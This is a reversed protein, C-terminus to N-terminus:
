PETRAPRAFTTTQWQYATQNTQLVSVIGTQMQGLVTARRIGLGRAAVDHSTIGGPKDVLVLGDPRPAASRM